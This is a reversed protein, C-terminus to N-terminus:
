QGTVKDGLVTISRNRFQDLDKANLWKNQFDVFIRESEGKERCDKWYEFLNKDELFSFM